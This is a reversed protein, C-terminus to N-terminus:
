IQIDRICRRVIKGDHRGREAEAAKHQLWADRAVRVAQRVVRQATAHRRRNRKNGTALWSAYLRNRETVLPKLDVENERFSDSKKWSTNM